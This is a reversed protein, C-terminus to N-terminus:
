GNFISSRSRKSSKRCALPSHTGYGWAKMWEGNKSSPRSFAISSAVALEFKSLRGAQIERAYRWSELVFSNVRFLFTTENCITFRTISGSGRWYRMNTESCLREGSKKHISQWSRITSGRSKRRGLTLTIVCVCHWKRGDPHHKTIYCYYFCVTSWSNSGELWQARIHVDTQYTEVSRHPAM